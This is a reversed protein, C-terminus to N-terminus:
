LILGELNSKDGSVMVQTDDAYQVVQAGEAFLSLDNAFVSFLMPGLASGQFVGM